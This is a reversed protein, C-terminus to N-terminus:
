TNIVIITTKTKYIFIYAIKKFYEQTNIYFQTFKFVEM